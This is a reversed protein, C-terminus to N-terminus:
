LHHAPGLIDLAIETIDIRLNSSVQFFAPTDQKRSGGTLYRGQACDQHLRVRRQQVRYVQNTM